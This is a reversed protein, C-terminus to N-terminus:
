GELLAAVMPNNTKIQAQLKEAFPILDADKTGLYGQLYTSNGTVETYQVEFAAGMVWALGKAQVDASGVVKAHHMTLGGDALTHIVGEVVVPLSRTIVPNKFEDRWGINLRKGLESGEWVKLTIMEGIAIWAFRQGNWCKVKLVTPLGAVRATEGVNDNSLVTTKLWMDMNLKKEPTALATTKVNTTMETM